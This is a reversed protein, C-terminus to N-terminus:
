NVLINMGVAGIEIPMGSNSFLANMSVVDADPAGYLVDDTFSVVDSLSM